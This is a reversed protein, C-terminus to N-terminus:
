KLAERTNKRMWCLIPYHDSTKISNDVVCKYPTFHSSCLINDIRVYIRNHHYSVGPGNGAHVYCDTLGRAMIRRAASLPSDNFDGVCIIPKDAHRQMYESVAMAQPYRLSAARSIKDILRESKAKLSDGGLRGSTLSVFQRKDQTSLKMSQLHNNVVIVTDQGMKLWFASSHNDTSQYAIHEKKIIPYRAYVALNDGSGMRTTDHYAYRKNMFSDLRAQGIENTSAEQLCVIDAQERKIYELIPNPRGRDEWAVFMWVNYSLVKIADEPVEGSRNFPTYLRIPYYAIVFGVFPVLAMKPKFILWAILFGLNLLLFLPFALGSSSLVPHEVPNVYGSYGLLLMVLITGVNAGVGVQVLFKKLPGLM